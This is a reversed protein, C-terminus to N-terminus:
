LLALLHYYRSLLWQIFNQIKYRGVSFNQDNTAIATGLRWSAQPVGLDQALQKLKGALQLVFFEGKLL